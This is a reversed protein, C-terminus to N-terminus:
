FWEAKKVKPNKINCLGMLGQFSYYRSWQLTAFPLLILKIMVHIVLSLQYKQNWIELGSSATLYDNIKGKLQMKIHREM